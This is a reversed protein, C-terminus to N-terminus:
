LVVLLRKVNCDRFILTGVEFNGTSMCYVKSAVVNYWCVVTVIM